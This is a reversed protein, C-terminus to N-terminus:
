GKLRLWTLTFMPQGSETARVQVTVRLCDGAVPLARSPTDADVPRVTVVQEFDALEPLPQSLADVPPHLVRGNWRNLEDFRRTALLEQVNTALLAAATQQEAQRTAASCQALLGATAVFTTGIIVIALAAEVLTFGAHRRRHVLPRLTSPDPRPNM